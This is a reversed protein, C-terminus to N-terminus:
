TLIRCFINLRGQVELNGIVKSKRFHWSLSKWFQDEDYRLDCFYKGILNPGNINLNMLLIYRYAMPSMGTSGKLMSFQGINKGGM